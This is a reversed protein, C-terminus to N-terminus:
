PIYLRQGAYVVNPNAIGNAQVIAWVSTGFRWAISALTDGWRVTYYTGHIPPVTARCPIWLRQGAYILNPHAIHNAWVISSV